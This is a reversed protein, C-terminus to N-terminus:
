KESIVLEDIIKSLGSGYLVDIYEFQKQLRKDVVKKDSERYHRIVKTNTPINVTKAAKIMLPVLKETLRHFAATLNKGQTRHEQVSATIKTPLHTIRVATDRKNRNQGGAGSGRFTEIRLDSKRVTQPWAM